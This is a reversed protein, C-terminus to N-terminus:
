PLCLPGLPLTTSESGRMMELRITSWVLLLGAATATAPLAPASPMQPVASSSSFSPTLMM